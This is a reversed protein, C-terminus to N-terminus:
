ELFTFFYDYFYNSLFLVFVYVNAKKVFHFYKKLHVRHHVQNLCQPVLRFTAPKIGSPTMPIKRRSLVESLVIARPYVSILVLVIEQPPLPPRHTPSVVKGSEHASRRSIRSAEVEQLRWPRGLGAFPVAKSQFYM